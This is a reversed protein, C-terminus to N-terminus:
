SLALLAKGGPLILEYRFDKGRLHMHPALSLLLGDAPLAATTAEARYNADHPPIELRRTANAVTKVEHTVSKSDAFWLGLQSNDLQPTGNPTYHVQFILKSGAPIRKAM